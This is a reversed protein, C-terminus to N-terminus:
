HMTWPFQLCPDPEASALGVEEKASSSGGHEHRIAMRRNCHASLDDPAWDGCVPLSLGASALISAYSRRSLVPYLGREDRHVGRLRTGIRTSGAWCYGGGAIIAARKGECVLTVGFEEACRGGHTFHKSKGPGEGLDGM